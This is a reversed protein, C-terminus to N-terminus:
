SKSEKEDPMRNHPPRVGVPQPEATYAARLAARRTENWGRHHEAMVRCFLNGGLTYTVWPRVLRRGSVACLKPEREGRVGIVQQLDLDKVEVAM